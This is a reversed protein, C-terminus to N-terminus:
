AWPDYSGVYWHHGEPDRLAYLHGGQPQAELESTIDAGAARAHAYHAEIGDVVLLTTQTVGGAETPTKTGPEGRATGVMVMAGGRTLQAHVITGDPGPVVLREEFGLVDCLWRIAGPADMYRISPIVDGNAM